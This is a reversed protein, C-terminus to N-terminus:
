EDRSPSYQLAFPNASSIRDLLVFARWTGTMPLPCCQHRVTTTTVTTSLLYISRNLLSFRDSPRVHCGEAALAHSGAMHSTFSRFAPPQVVAPARAALAAVALTVACVWQCFGMSALSATRAMTTARRAQRSAAMCEFEKPM